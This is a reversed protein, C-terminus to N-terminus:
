QDSSTPRESVIAVRNGSPSVAIRTISTIGYDSLDAIPEWAGSRRRNWQYLEAARGMLIVGGPTWAYDEQGPLTRVLKTALLTHRDLEEIWWEDESIKHVFSVSTRAPVKHLSRGVAAAVSDARGTSLDAIRLTPPDGLVFLAVTGADYWAHYGVPMVSELLVGRNEGAKDFHWLRQTSDAEVQVVSFTKAGPMPTPSYESEATHTIRVTSAREIDYYYTDAQGDRISTFLIGRGDSTFSPQNDYGDRDTINRLDGIQVRGEKVTLAGLYIDTPSQAIASPAFAALCPVLCLLSRRASM